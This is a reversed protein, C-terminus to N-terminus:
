NNQAAMEEEVERALRELMEDETEVRSKEFLEPNAPKGSQPLLANEYFSLPAPILKGDRDRDGPTYKPALNPKSSNVPKFLITTPPISKVEVTTDIQECEIDNIENKNINKHSQEEEIFINEEKMPDEIRLIKKSKKNTNKNSTIETKGVVSEPKVCGQNGNKDTPSKPKVCDSFDWENTGTIEYLNRFGHPGENIVIMKVRELETLAKRVTPLSTSTGSAIERTGPNWSDSQSILFCYTTKAKVSLPLKWLENPIISYNGREQISKTLKSKNVSM